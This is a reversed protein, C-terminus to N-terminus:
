EKAESVLLACKAVNKGLYNLSATDNALRLKLLYSACVVDSAPLAVASDLTLRLVGPSSVVVATVARVHWQGTYDQLAIDRYPVSQFGNNEIYLSTGIEGTGTVQLDNTFTPSWFSRYKGARRRLWQIFSIVEVRTVLVISWSLSQKSYIWPTTRFVTGLEFDSIDQEQTFKVDLKEGDREFAILSLDAGKYQTPVVEAFGYRNDTCRFSFEDVSNIGQKRSSEGALYGTYIPYMAASLQATCPSLTVTGAGVSEITQIQWVTPSTYLLVLRGAILELEGTDVSFVTAGNAVTGVHWGEAWNPVAYDDCLRANVLSLFERAQPAQNLFSYEFSRRAHTRMQARYETGDRAVECDTKWELTERAPLTAQAPLFVLPGLSTSVLPM